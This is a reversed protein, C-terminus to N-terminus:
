LTMNRASLKKYVNRKVEESVEATPHIM